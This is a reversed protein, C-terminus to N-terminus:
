FFSPLKPRNLEAILAKAKFVNPRKSVRKEKEVYASFAEKALDPSDNHYHALGLYYYGDVQTPDLDVAKELHGAGDEFNQTNYYALGLKLHASADKGNGEVAKRYNAIAKEYDGRNFELNGISVFVESYDPDIELAKQYMQEADSIKGQRVYAMGLNRHVPGLSKPSDSGMEIAQQYTEVAKELQGTYFYALGRNLYADTFTPKIKIARGYEAVALDVHGKYYYALGLLYRAFANRPARELASRYQVVADDFRGSRYLVQGLGIRFEVIDPSAEVALEIYSRSDALDELIRGYLFLNVTDRKQGLRQRYAQILDERQGAKLAEDQYEINAKIDYPRRAVVRRLHGLEGIGQGESIAHNGFGSLLLGALLM